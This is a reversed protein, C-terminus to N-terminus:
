LGDLHRRLFPRLHNQHITAQRKEISQFGSAANTFVSEPILDLNQREIASASWAIVGSSQGRSTVITNLFWKIKIPETFIQGCEEIGGRM